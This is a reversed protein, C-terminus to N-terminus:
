SLIKTLYKSFVQLVFQIFDKYSFVRFKGRYCLNNVEYLELIFYSIECHFMVPEIPFITVLEMPREFIGEFDSSKLM